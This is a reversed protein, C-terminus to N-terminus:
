RLIGLARIYHRLPDLEPVQPPSADKVDKWIKDWYKEKM